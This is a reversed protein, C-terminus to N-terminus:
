RIRDVLALAQDRCNNRAMWAAQETQSELDAPMVRIKIEASQGDLNVIYNQGDEFVRSSVTLFQHGAPWEATATRASQARRVQLKSALSSDARWLKASDAGICKTGSQAVNVAWADPLKENGTPSASRVVGLARTSREENSLLAGLVTVVQDSSRGGSAPKLGLESPKGQSPGQLTLTKGDAGVLTVKSGSKLILPQNGDIVTGRKLASGEVHLIVMEYSAQKAQVSFATATLLTAALTTRIMRKM